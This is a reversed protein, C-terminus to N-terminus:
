VGHYSHVLLSSIRSQFALVLEVLTLGTLFDVRSLNLYINESVM